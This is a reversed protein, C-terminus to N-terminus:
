RNLRKRLMLEYVEKMVASIPVALFVGVFGFLAGGLIVVSIIWLPSLGVSDGMIKPGIVNGDLQQLLFIFLAVWIARVPDTMFTMGIPLIAGVIPGFYPIINTVFVVFSFLLVYPTKLLSFGIFAIAGVVFSDLLRGVMYDQFTRYTFRIFYMVRNEYRPFYAVLFQKFARLVKQQDIILYISITFGLVWQLTEALFRVVSTWLSTSLQNVVKFTSQSLGQINEEVYTLFENWYPIREIFESGVEQSDLMRIYDGVKEVLDSIGVLCSPIVLVFCCVIVGILVLYASIISLGRPCKLRVEFWHVVPNIFAVLIAGILFPKIIGIFSGILRYFVDPYGTFRYLLIGGVTLLFIYKATEKTM